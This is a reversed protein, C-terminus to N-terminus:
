NSYYEKIANFLSQAAKEAFDARLIIKEDEPNTIFLIEPLVSIFNEGRLQINNRNVVGRDRATFASVLHQQVLIALERSQLGNLTNKNYLTEIGRVSKIDNANNHLSIFMDANFNAAFEVRQILDNHYTGPFPREDTYRTLIVEAGEKQLLEKLKLAIPLVVEKETIGTSGVAGPDIGGHGPDIVIRRGQLGPSLIKLQIYQPTQQILYRQGREELPRKDLHFTITKRDVKIKVNNILHSINLFDETNQVSNVTIKINENDDLVKVESKDLNTFNFRIFNNKDEQFVTVGQFFNQQPLQNNPIEQTVNKSDTPIKLKRKLSLTSEQESNFFNLRFLFISFSILLFIITLLKKKNTSKKTYLKGNYTKRNYLKRNRMIVGELNLNVLSNAKYINSM